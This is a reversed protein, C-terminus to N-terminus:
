FSYRAERQQQAKQYISAGQSMNVPPAEREFRQQLGGNSFGGRSTRNVLNTYTRSSINGNLDVGRQSTNTSASTLPTNRDHVKAYNLLTHGEGIKSINPACSANLHNKIPLPQNGGAQQQIDSGRINRSVNSSAFAHPVEKVIGREPIANTALKTKKNMRSTDAYAHRNNQHVNNKIDTTATQPKEINFIAKPAACVKLLDQRVSRLDTKCNMLTEMKTFESGFNTIQQTPRHPMRSLPLLEQPPIVPPRFAGDQMVKYPLSAQVNGAGRIAIPDQGTGVAGDRYRVQGGNTGYNSYSVSVMPNIGRAYPKIVECVRDGSDQIMQTIESTDGVKPIYRTEIAKPPDRLINLTGFGGEVSPLTMHTQKPYQIM